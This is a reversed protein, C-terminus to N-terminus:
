EIKGKYREIISEESGEDKGEKVSEIWKVYTRRTESGHKRRDKRGM